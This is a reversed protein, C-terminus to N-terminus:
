RFVAVHKRPTGSLDRAATGFARFASGADLQDIPGLGVLEIIPTAIGDPLLLRATQCVKPDFEQSDVLRAIKGGIARDLDAVATSLPGDAVIGVIIADAEITSAPTSTSVIKM